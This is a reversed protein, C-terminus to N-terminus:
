IGNNFRKTRKVNEIQQELYRGFEDLEKSTLMDPVIQMVSNILPNNNAIAMGKEVGKQYSYVERRNNTIRGYGQVAMTALEEQTM